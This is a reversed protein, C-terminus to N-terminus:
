ARTVSTGEHKKMFRDVPMDLLAGALIAGGGIVAGNAWQPLTATAKVSQEVRMRFLPRLNLVAEVPPNVAPLNQEDRREAFNGLGDFANM